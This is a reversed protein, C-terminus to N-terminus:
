ILFWVRGRRMCGDMHVCRGKFSCAAADFHCNERSEHIRGCVDEKEEERPVLRRCRARRKDTFNIRMNQRPQVGGRRSRFHIKVRTYICKWEGVAAHHGHSAIDHSVGRM